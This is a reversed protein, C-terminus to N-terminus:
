AMYDICALSSNPASDLIQSLKVKGQRLPRLANGGTRSRHVPVALVDFRQFVRQSARPPGM